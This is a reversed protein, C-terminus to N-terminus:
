TNRLPFLDCLDPQGEKEGREGDYTGHRRMEGLLQIQQLPYATGTNPGLSDVNTM